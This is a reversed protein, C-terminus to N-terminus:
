LSQTLGANKVQRTKGSPTKLTVTDGVNAKLVGLSSRELMIERSGSPWAGSEPAVKSVRMDSFDPITVLQTNIWDNPGTQLRVTVGRRADADELQSMTRVTKLLEEDFSTLTLIVAHAPNTAAYTNLRFNNWGSAGAM